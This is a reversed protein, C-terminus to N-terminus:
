MASSHAVNGESCRWVNDWTGASTAPYLQVDGFHLGRHWFPPTHMASPCHWHAGPYLPVTQWFRLNFWHLSMIRATLLDDHQLTKKKIKAQIIEWKLLFYIYVHDHRNKSWYSWAIQVNKSMRVIKSRCISHDSERKHVAIQGPPQIGFASHTRGERHRQRSPKVPGLHLHVGVVLLGDAPCSPILSNSPPSESFWTIAGSSVLRHRQRLPPRHTRWRQLHRGPKVPGLHLYPWHM